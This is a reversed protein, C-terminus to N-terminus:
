PVVIYTLISAKADILNNQYDDINFERGLEKIISNIFMISKEVGGDEDVVSSIVGQIINYLYRSLHIIAEERNIIKEGIYYSSNCEALKARFLQNIIQEYIGKKLM